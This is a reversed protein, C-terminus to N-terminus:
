KPASSWKTVPREMLKGDVYIDLRENYFCLHDAIKAVAPIPTHYSWVIDEHQHGNSTVSWYHADGKYPCSTVSETPTLKTMDVDLKPVYYRSPLGTEFLIRTRDSKALVVGELRIEISRESDLVDVRHYPDRAHVFVEEAEEYWHDIKDWYIGALNSIDPCGAVPDPYNWIADEARRDGVVISWYRADGKLPCHSTTQSPELLESDLDDLPIYYLPLHRPEYLLKARRSDAIAVGNFFARIWRPSERIIVDQPTAPEAGPKAAAAPMRKVNAGNAM